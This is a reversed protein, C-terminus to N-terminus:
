TSYANGADTAVTSDNNGYKTAALTCIGLTHQCQYCSHMVLAFGSSRFKQPNSKKQNRYIKHIVNAIGKIYASSQATTATTNFVMIYYPLLETLCVTFPPDTIVNAYESIFITKILSITTASLAASYFGM